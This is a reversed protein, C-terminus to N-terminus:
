PTPTDDPLGKPNTRLYIHLPSQDDFVAEFPDSPTPMPTWRAVTRVTAFAPVILCAILLYKGM